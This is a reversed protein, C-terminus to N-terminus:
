WPRGATAPPLAPSPRSNRCCHPRGPALWECRKRAFSAQCDSRPWPMPPRGPCLPYRDCGNCRTKRWNSRPGGPGGTAAEGTSVSTQRRSGRWMPQRKVRRTAAPPTATRSVAAVAASSMAVWMSFYWSRGVSRASAERTQGAPSNPILSTSKAVFGRSTKVAPSQLTSAPPASSPTPRARRQWPIRRSEM